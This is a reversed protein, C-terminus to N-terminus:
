RTSARRRARPWRVPTMPVMWYTISSSRRGAPWVVGSASSNCAMSASISARPTSPTAM